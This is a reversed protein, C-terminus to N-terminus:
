LICCYVLIHYHLQLKWCCQKKFYSVHLSISTKLGTFLLLFPFCILM